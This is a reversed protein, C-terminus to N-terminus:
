PLNGSVVVTGSPRGDSDRDRFQPHFGIAPMRKPDVARLAARVFLIERREEKVERKILAEQM